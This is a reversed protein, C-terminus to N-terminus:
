LAFFMSESTSVSVLISLVIILSVYKSLNDHLEISVATQGNCSVYMMHKSSLHISM